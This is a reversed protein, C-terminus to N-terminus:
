DSLSNEPVALTYKGTPEDIASLFGENKLKKLEAELEPVDLEGEEVVGVSELFQLLRWADIVSYDFIMDHADIVVGEIDVFTLGCGHLFFAWVGESTKIQGHRPFDFLNEWDKSSPFKERFATLLLVQLSIFENAYFKLKQTSLM